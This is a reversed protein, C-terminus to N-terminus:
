WTKLQTEAIFHAVRNVPGLQERLLRAVQGKSKPL